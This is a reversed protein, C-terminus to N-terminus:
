YYILSLISITAGFRVDKIPSFTAAFSIEYAPLKYFRELHGADVTYIKPASFAKNLAKFVLPFVGFYPVRKWEPNM